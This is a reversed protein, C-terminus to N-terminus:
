CKVNLVLTVIGISTGITGLRVRYIHRHRLTIDATHVVNDWTMSSPTVSVTQTILRTEGGCVVSPNTLTVSATTAIRQCRRCYAFSVHM